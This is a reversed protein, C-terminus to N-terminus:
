HIAETNISLSPEIQLIYVIGHREKLSNPQDIDLFKGDGMIAIKDCIKEAEDIRHTILLTSTNRMKKLHTYLNKRSMPDLGNSPEDMFVIRPTSLLAMACCLKRKNGGSLYKSQKNSEQTLSLLRKMESM